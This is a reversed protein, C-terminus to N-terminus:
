TKQGAPEYKFGTTFILNRSDTKFYINFILKRTNADETKELMLQLGRMVDCFPVFKGTKKSLTDQLETPTPAESPRHNTLEVSLLLSVGQPGDMFREM